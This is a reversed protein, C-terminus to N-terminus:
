KGSAYWHARRRHIKNSKRCSMAGRCGGGEEVISVEARLGSTLAALLLSAGDDVDEM